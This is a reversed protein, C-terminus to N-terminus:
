LPVVDSPETADEPWTTLPTFGRHGLSGFVTVPHGGSIAALRWLGPRGLRRPDVPLASDGDADALQWGDATPIPVAPALVVPYDDLWPDSRLAAGYAALADGVAMGPPVSGPTTPGHRTGLAARLPLAGPHYALEADLVRGVPLALEPTRGAAGFSLLLAPRGLGTGRLWIRRTLLQGEASDQQSLVLWHDRVTPGALLENTDITFGVRARVIAALDAPLTDHALYGRALLHLLGHEELMRAPWNDGSGAIAAFERARSALGPAQADVMRAAVEDWVGWQGPATAAFGARVQDALRQRLEAAGARVRVVRREARRQAARPDAPGTSAAPGAAATAAKKEAAAHQAANWERVWDPAQELTSAPVHPAPGTQTWLLLLGLAHKCPFKRSPCGCKFAPPGALDVVTRYPTSGSGRCLGWLWPGAGGAGPAAGTGSWPGPVGLKTGAKRSAPDPALALVREPSWREETDDM